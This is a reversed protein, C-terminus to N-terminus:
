CFDYFIRLFFYLHLEKNVRGSYLIETVDYMLLYLFSIIKVRKKYRLTKEKKYRKVYLLNSIKYLITSYAISYM